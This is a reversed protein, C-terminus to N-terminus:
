RGPAIPAALTFCDSSRLPCAGSYLVAPAGTAPDFFLKPRERRSLQTTVTPGAGGSVYSTYNVTYAPTDWPQLAWPGWVSRGSSVAYGGVLVQTHTASRNYAHFLVRWAGVGGEANPLAGDWWLFPDEGTYDGQSIPFLDRAASYPGRWSDAVSLTANGNNHSMVYITGNNSPDFAPAPNTGNFLNRGNLTGALPTWPGSPAPASWCEITEFGHQSQPPAGGEEGHCKAPVPDPFMGISFILFTGDPARIPAVNHHYFPLAREVFAFPGVPTAGVAHIAVSNSGWSGLDCGGVFASAYLHYQGEVLLVSGGWSSFSANNFGSPNPSPLFDMVYPSAFATTVLRLLTLRYFM